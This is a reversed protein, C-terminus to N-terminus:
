KAAILIRKTGGADLWAFSDTQNLVTFNCLQKTVEVAHEINSAEIEMEDRWQAGGHENEFTVTHKM